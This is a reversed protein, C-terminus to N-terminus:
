KKAWKITKRKFNIKYNVNKLFNMGLLGKSIGSNGKYDIISIRFNVIRYPGVVIYDLLANKKDIVSGDATTSKSLSFPIIGIKDAIDNHISTTTAGTDFILWTSIEKGRYGLKVPVLVSNGQILAQTEIENAISRFVREKLYNKNKPSVIAVQSDFDINPNSPPFDSFHKIGDEDVWSYILKENKRKAPKKNIILPKIKIPQYKIATEPRKYLFPINNTIAITHKDFLEKVIKLDFM